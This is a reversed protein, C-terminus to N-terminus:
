YEIDFKGSDIVVHVNDNLMATFYFTGKIKSGTSQTLRISGGIAEYWLSGPQCGQFFNDCSPDIDVLHASSKSHSENSISYEGISQPFYLTLSWPDEINNYSRGSITIIGDFTSVRPNDILQIGRNQIRFQLTPIKVEEDDKSCSSFSTISLIVSFLILLKTKM